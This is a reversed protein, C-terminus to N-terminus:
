GLRGGDFAEDPDRAASAAASQKKGCEPCKNVREANLSGITIWGDPVTDGEKWWKTVIVLYGPRLQQDITRDVNAV